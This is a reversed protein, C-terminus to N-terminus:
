PRPEWAAAGIEDAGKRGLAVPDIGRGPVRVSRKASGDEKWMAAVFVAEQPIYYGGLAKSCGGGIRQLFAREALMSDWAERTGQRLPEFPGRLEDRAVLAIIGQGPAPPYDVPSLRTATVTRGLRQVGAEALVLVDYEGRGLKDLRTGVNGRVPVIVADPSHFKVLAQRRPSSTGVRTGPPLQDLAPPAERGALLDGPPGRSTVAVLTLGLPLEPPLDKLSHVAVDARGSLIEEDVEREFVGVGSLAALDAHEARDARTTVWRETFQIGPVYTRLAEQALRAQVRSLPSGRAVLTLRAPLRLPDPLPRSM